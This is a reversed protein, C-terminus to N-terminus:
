STLGCPVLQAEWRGGDVGQGRAFCNEHGVSLYTKQRLSNSSLRLNDLKIKRLLHIVSICTDRSNNKLWVLNLAICNM